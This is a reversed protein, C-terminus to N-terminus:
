VYQVCVFVCHRLSAAASSSSLRSCPIKSESNPALWAPM